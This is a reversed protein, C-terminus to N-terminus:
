VRERVLDTVYRQFTFCARSSYPNIMQREADGCICYIWHDATQSNIGYEYLGPYHANGALPLGRPLSWQM